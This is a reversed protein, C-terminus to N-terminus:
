RRRLLLLVLVAAAGVALGSGSSPREPELDGARISEATPLRPDRLLSRFRSYKAVARDVDENTARHYLSTWQRDFAGIKYLLDEPIKEDIVLRNASVMLEGIADHLLDKRKAM